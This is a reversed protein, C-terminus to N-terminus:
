CTNYQGTVYGGKESCCAKFDEFNDNAVAFYLLKGWCYCDRTNGLEKMCQETLSWSDNPKGNWCRITTDDGSCGKVQTAALVVIAIYSAISRMYM